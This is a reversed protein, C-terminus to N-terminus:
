RMRQTSAHDITMGQTPMGSFSTMSLTCGVPLACYMSNM